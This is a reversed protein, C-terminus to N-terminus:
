IKYLVEFIIGVRPKDMEDVWRNISPIGNIVENRNKANLKKTLEVAFQLRRDLIMSELLGYLEWINDRFLWVLGEALIEETTAMFHVIKSLWDCVVLIVDKEVVLPLETIFNVM